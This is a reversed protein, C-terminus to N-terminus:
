PYKSSKWADKLSGKKGRFGGSFLPFRRQLVYRTVVELEGGGAKQMALKKARPKKKSRHLILRRWAHEPLSILPSLVLSIYADLARPNKM